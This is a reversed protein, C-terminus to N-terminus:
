DIQAIIIGKRKFSDIWFNITKEYSLHIFDSFLEEKGAGNKDILHEYISIYPIDQQECLFSHYSDWHKCIKGRLETTGSVDTEREEAPMRKKIIEDNLSPQAGAVAVNFGKDKLDLISRHYRDICEEVVNSVDRNKNVYRPLHARCDIEGVQMLIMTNKDNFIEPFENIFSYVKKLHHEYFNYALAPGLYWARFPYVPNVDTFGRGEPKHRQKPVMNGCPPAGPLTAAHSNGVVEFKM